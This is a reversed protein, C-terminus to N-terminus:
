SFNFQRASLRLCYDKCEGWLTQLHPRILLCVVSVLHSFLEISAHCDDRRLWSATKADVECSSRCHLM